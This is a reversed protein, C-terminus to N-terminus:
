LGQPTGQQCESVMVYFDIGSRRFKSQSPANGGERLTAVLFVEM